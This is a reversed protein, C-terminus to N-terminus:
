YVCVSWVGKSKAKYGPLMTGRKRRIRRGHPKPVCTVKGRGKTRVLREERPM